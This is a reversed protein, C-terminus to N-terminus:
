RGEVLNQPQEEGPAVASLMGSDVATFDLVVQKWVPSGYQWQKFWEFRRRLLAIFQEQEDLTNFEIKGLRPDGHSYAPDLNGLNLFYPHEKNWTKMHLRGRMHSRICYLYTAYLARDFRADYNGHRVEQIAKRLNKIDISM